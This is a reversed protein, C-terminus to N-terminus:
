AKRASKGRRESQGNPSIGYILSQNMFHLVDLAKLKGLATSALPLRLAEQMKRRSSYLLLLKPIIPKQPATGFFRMQGAAARHKPM